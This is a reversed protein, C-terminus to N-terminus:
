SKLLAQLRKTIEIKKKNFAPKDLKKGTMKDPQDWIGKSQKDAELYHTRLWTVAAQSIAAEGLSDLFALIDKYPKDHDDKGWKEKLEMLTRVQPDDERLLQERKQREENFKALRDDVRNKINVIHKEESEFYGLGSSTRAGAGLTALADVLTIRMEDLSLTRHHVRSQIPIIGCIWAQDKEVALYTIPVPGLWDGPALPTETTMQYYPGYHPTMVEVALRVPQVPILDTFAFAGMSSPMGFDANGSHKDFLARQDDDLQEVVYARVAGKLGSGPLYPVGLISHWAFGNDTPHELGTGTVFRSNSNKLGVVVGGSRTVFQWIREASEQLQEPRGVQRQDFNKFWNRNKAPDNFVFFKDPDRAWADAFKNFRLGANASPHNLDAGQVEAYLPVTWTM